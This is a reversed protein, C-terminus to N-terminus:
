LNIKELRTNAIELFLHDSTESTDGGEWIHHECTEAWELARILADKWDKRITEPFTLCIAYKCLPYIQRSCKAVQWEEYTISPPLREEGEVDWIGCILCGDETWEYGNGNVFFLHVLFDLETPFISNSYKLYERRSAESYDKPTYKM